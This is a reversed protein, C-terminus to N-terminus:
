IDDDQKPPLPTQLQASLAVIQAEIATQEDDTVTRGLLGSILEMLFPKADATTKIVIPGIDSAAKVAAVILAIIQLADM